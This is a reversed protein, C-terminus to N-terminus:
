SWERIYIIVFVWVFLFFPLGFLGMFFCTINDRKKQYNFTEKSGKTYIVWWFVSAYYAVAVSVILLYSIFFWILGLYLSYM